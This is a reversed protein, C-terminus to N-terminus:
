DIGATNVFLCPNINNKQKGACIYDCCYQREQNKGTKYTYYYNHIHAHVPNITYVYYEQKQRVSADPLLLDKM